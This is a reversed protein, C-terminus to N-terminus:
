ASSAALLRVSSVAPGTRALRQWSRLLREAAAAGPGLTATVIAGPKAGVEGAATLVRSGQLPIGGMHHVLLYDAITFGETPALYYFSHGLRYDRRQAALQRRV